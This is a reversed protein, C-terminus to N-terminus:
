THIIGKVRRLAEVYNPPYLLTVTDFAHKIEYYSPEYVASAGMVDESDLVFIKNVRIPEKFMFKQNRKDARDVGIYDAGYAILAAVFYMDTVENNEM